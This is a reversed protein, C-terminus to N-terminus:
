CRYLPYVSVFVCVAVHDWLGVRNKWIWFLLSSIRGMLRQTQKPIERNNSTLPETFIGRDNSALPETYFNDRYRICACCYFFQQVRRKWHPGHRILSLLRNTRGLVEQEYQDIYSIWEDMDANPKGFMCLRVYLTEVYCRELTLIQTRFTGLPSPQMIAYEWM